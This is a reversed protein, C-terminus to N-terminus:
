SKKSTKAYFATMQPEVEESQCKPCRHREKQHQELHEVVDFIEGCKRCRYEYTPMTRGEPRRNCVSQQDRADIQGAAREGLEPCGARQV